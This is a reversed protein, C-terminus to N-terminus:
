IADVSVFDGMASLRSDLLGAAPCQSLLGRLGEAESRSGTLSMTGIDKPLVLPANRASKAITAAVKTAPIFEASLVAGVIVFDGKPSEISDVFDRRKALPFRL